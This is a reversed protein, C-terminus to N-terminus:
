VAGSNVWEAFKLQFKQILHSAAESFELTSSAAPAGAKLPNLAPASGSCVMKHQTNHPARPHWSGSTDKDRFTVWAVSWTHHSDEVPQEDMM